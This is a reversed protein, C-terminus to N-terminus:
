QGRKAKAERLWRRVAQRHDETQGSRIMRDSERPLADALPMHQADHVNQKMFRYASQPGEAITQAWAMAASALQEDPVVRNFLGLSKAEAADIAGNGILTELARAPGIMRTLFWAGGFDGSFGLRGWGTILTASEAAIRLDAALAIGIGAGVAPGPLAAVTIKPCGQLLLVMRAMYALPNAGNAGSTEPRPTASDTDPDLQRSRAAGSQVDGGACFATGAATVMIVAVEDASAFREILRPVADYMDAHLANRREPRNLEIVGVAGDVYSRVTETGTDVSTIV